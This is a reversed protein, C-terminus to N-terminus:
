SGAKAEHGNVKCGFNDKILTVHGLVRHSPSHVPPLVHTGLHPTHVDGHSSTPHEMNNTSDGHQQQSGWHQEPAPPHCLPPLSLRLHLYSASPADHKPGDTSEVCHRERFYASCLWCWLSQVPPLFSDPKEKLLPHPSPPLAM